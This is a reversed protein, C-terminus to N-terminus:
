FLAANDPMASFHRMKTTVVSFGGGIKRNELQVASQGAEKARAGRM